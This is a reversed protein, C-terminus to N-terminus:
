RGSETKAIQRLSTTERLFEEDMLFDVLKSFGGESAPPLLIDASERLEFPADEMSVAIDARRLLDEDNLHDGVAVVIRQRPPLSELYWELAAGKSVGLPLIDLFSKGAMTVTVRDGLKAEVIGRAEQIDEPAGYVIGRFYEGRVDPSVLDQRVPVGISRFYEAVKVDEPRCRIKEDGFLQLMVPADWVSNLALSLVEGGLRAERVATRSRLEMLRAGDYVIAPSKAGIHLAHPLASALIRGTAVHISWGKERLVACSRAVKDPIRDKHALTGDIDTVIVREILRIM